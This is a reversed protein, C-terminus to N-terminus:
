QTDYANVGAQGPAADAHHVHGGVARGGECPDPHHAARMFEGKVGPQQDDRFRNVLPQIRKLRVNQGNFTNKGLRVEASDHTHRLYGPNDHHCRGPAANGDGHVRGRLDFRGDRAVAAGVLCKHRGHDGPKQPQILGRARSVGSVGQGQSNGM